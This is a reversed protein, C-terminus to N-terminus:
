ILSLEFQANINVTVAVESPKNSGSSLHKNWRPGIRM